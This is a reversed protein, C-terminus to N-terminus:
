KSVMIKRGEVRFQAGGTSELIRLVQSVNDFRSIGGGFKEAPMEGVYVVDVDYWREIMRMIYAIDDNEFLFKNNKWAIARETDVASVQLSKETVSAQDGPKLIRSGSQGSVKVSGKLLTTRVDQENRYANVNFHTGLVLIEQQRSEVVFPRSKDEAVQFYAEGELKVKRSGQRSLSTSYTLSSAANLWVVSGDPLTLRYTEGRATSLTNVLDSADGIDNIKYVLHGDATKTVSIGAQKAIEGNAVEGLRIKQGNALTLTAGVSGPQIVNAYPAASGSGPHPGSSFFYLGAVLLVVAAAVGIAIQPWLRTNQKAPRADITQSIRSFSQDLMAILEPKSLLEESVSSNLAEEILSLFTDRDESSQLHLFFQRAEAEDLEDNLYKYFSIRLEETNKLKM